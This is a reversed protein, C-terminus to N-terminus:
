YTFPVRWFFGLNNPICDRCVEVQMQGNAFITFHRCQHRFPGYAVKKAKSLPSHVPVEFLIKKASIRGTVHM